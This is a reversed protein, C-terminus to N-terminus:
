RCRGCKRDRGYFGYRGCTPCVGLKEIIEPEDPFEQQKQIITVKYRAKRITDIVEQEKSQLFEWHKFPTKRYRGKLRRMLNVLRDDYEFYVEVINKGLTRVVTVEYVKPKQWKRRM